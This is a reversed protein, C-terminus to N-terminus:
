FRYSYINGKVSNIKLSYGIFKGITHLNISKARTTRSNNINLTQQIIPMEFIWNKLKEPLSLTLLKSSCFKYFYCSKFYKRSGYHNQKFDMLSEFTLKQFQANGKVHNQTMKWFIWGILFHFVYCIKSSYKLQQPTLDGCLSCSVLDNQISEKRLIVM